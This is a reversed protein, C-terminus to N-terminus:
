KFAFNPICKQGDIKSKRITHDAKPEIQGKPASCSIDNSAFKCESSFTEGNENRFVFIVIIEGLFQM